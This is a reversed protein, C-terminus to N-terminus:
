WCVSLFKRQYWTTANRDGLQTIGWLIVLELVMLTFLIARCICLIICGTVLIFMCLLEFFVWLLFYIILCVIILYICMLCKYKTFLRWSRAFRM